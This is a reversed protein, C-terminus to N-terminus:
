CSTKVRLDVLAVYMKLVDQLCNLLVELPQFM